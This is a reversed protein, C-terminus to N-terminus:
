WESCNIRVYGPSTRTSNEDDHELLEGPQHSEEKKEEQQQQQENVTETSLPCKISRGKIM